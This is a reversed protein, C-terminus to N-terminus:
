CGRAAIQERDRHREHLQHRGAPRPHDHEHLFGSVPATYTFQTSSVAPGTAAITLTAGGTVTGGKATVKATHGTGLASVTNGVSDSGRSDVDQRRCLHSFGPRCHGFSTRKQNRNIIAARVAHFYDTITLDFRTLDGCVFATGREDGAM